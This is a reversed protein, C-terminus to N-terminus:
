SNFSPESRPSISVTKVEIILRAPALIGSAFGVLGPEARFYPLGFLQVYVPQDIELDQQNLFEAPRQEIDVLGIDFTYEGEHPTDSLRTM